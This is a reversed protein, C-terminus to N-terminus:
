PLAFAVWADGAPVNLKGGGTAPIVVYQKGKVAYTMPSTSGTFPLKASWLEAGTTADFAYIRGDKTGSAFVVNGATVTAGGFNETGTKPIGKATLEPYEGLPVQWLKKGTNLDICALTGWPPKVGPYGDQDELKRYGDFSYKPPGAEAKAATGRDRCLLFDLLQQQQEPTLFPMPPMSGRGAKWIEKIQEDNLRHRLGRMPPAHGLGRRDPGHCAACFTLYTQEGATMPKAPAPDDDRFVTIINPRHNSTVYLRGNALDVASGTWEAGGHTSTFVTPKNLEFPVYWGYNARSILLEIHARAEPTRDTIDEKRFDERSFHEPLEPFPQYPATVEGPLKSTPARRLRFPFVHKGTVRDVLLTVGTKSVAAVADYKKGDREVTVLNPPAPLDLDWIDHRIEQVHWRYTGDAANIAVLCNCFLNDGHHRTGDFNPKPSGTTFYVLGRPEDLAIGGWCNAANTPRGNLWTDGGVTGPEAITKFTWLMKGSVVDMGYVDRDYGPMILVNKWVAGGATASAPMPVRGGTGFSEVLKGTKADIAITARGGPFIIRPANTGDGPWYLLGRRGPIEFGGAKALGVDAKWIEQGTAADVAAIQRGPTPTYLVGDVVIPVCQVNDKGDGSHYTWAVTLDKVNAASIQTLSSYRASTDGGLSRTWTALQQTTPWGQAPTLEATTAAPVVQFEPLAARAAADEVVAEGAILAFPLLSLVARLINHTLLM